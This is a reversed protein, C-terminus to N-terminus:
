PTEDRPVEGLVKVVDGPRLGFLVGQEARLLLVTQPQGNVQVQQTELSRRDIMQPIEIVQPPGALGKQINMVDHLEALQKRARRAKNQEVLWLGALAVVIVVLLACVMMAMPMERQEPTEAPEDTDHDM